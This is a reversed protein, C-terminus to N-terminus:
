MQKATFSQATTAGIISVLETSIAGSSMLMTGGYPQLQISPQAQVATTTFNVWLPGTSNNVLLLYKRSANVAFVTQAAGGTTITGSGDTFTGNLAGVSVTGSVPQTAQWFTGTVPTTPASAISVPQTSQWFTGTVPTTPASALSVPIASQNSAVVVPASASMVAQGLPALGASVQKGGASISVGALVLIFTALASWIFRNNKM